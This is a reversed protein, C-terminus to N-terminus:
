VNARRSKKRKKRNSKKGFSNQQGSIILDLKKEELDVRSIQVEITQGVKFLKGSREGILQQKLPDYFYFDDSLSTVHVLGSTFIEDLEVFFGFSSVGTVIGAFDDGVHTQLHQLKYYSIVERSAEEARRETSSCHEAIVPLNDALKKAPKRKNIISKLLRHVILDPYRRIPSTFHTYAQYNLAFHIGAEDSYHAQKQTRLMMTSVIYKWEEKIAPNSLVNVFDESTPRDGGTLELNFDSLFYRLDAVREDDPREHVRFMGSEFKQEILEAACVNAALMFEEILRHADNRIIPKISDVKGQDDFNVFTEPIELELAGRQKRLKLLMKFLQYAQDLSKKLEPEIDNSKSNNLYEWVRTYTLRARSKIVAEYFEYGLRNGQDDMDIECIMVLREVKPNLSCIGNSYAEPLMPVVRNPFYVSTGREYAIKGLVSTAKIYHSVDAIAVYLKYGSDTRNVLVADDFDKATEGDITVFNLNRLDIRKNIEAPTLRVPCVSAAKDAAQSWVHPIQHKYLALTIPMQADSVDGFVHVIEGLLLRKGHGPYQTIKVEVIDGFNVGHLSENNVYIDHSIRKDLPQVYRKRDYSRVVGCIHKHARELIEMVRGSLKETNRKRKVEVKVRDGHLVADMEFVPLYVDNSKDDPEVFGFGKPHGIVTGTVIQNKNNSNNKSKKM